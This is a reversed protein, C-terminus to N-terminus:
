RDNTERRIDLLKGFMPYFWDSTIWSLLQNSTALRKGWRYVDKM